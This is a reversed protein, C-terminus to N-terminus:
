CPTPCSFVACLLKQKPLSPDCEGTTCYLYSLLFCGLWMRPKAGDRVSVVTCEGSSSNCCRLVAKSRLVWASGLHSSFGRVRAFCSRNRIVGNSSDNTNRRKAILTFTSIIGQCCEKWARVVQMGGTLRTSERVASSVCFFKCTDSERMLFAPQNSLLVTMMLVALHDVLCTIIWVPSIEHFTLVSTQSYLYLDNRGGYDERTRTSASRNTCM